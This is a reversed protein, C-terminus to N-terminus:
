VPEIQGGMTRQRGRLEFLHPKRGVVIAPRGAQDRWEGRCPPEQDDAGQQGGSGDSSLNGSRLAPSSSAFTRMNGRGSVSQVAEHDSAIAFAMPDRAVFFAQGAAVIAKEVAASAKPASAARM